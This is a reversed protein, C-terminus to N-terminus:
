SRFAPNATRPRLYSVLLGTVVVVVCGIVNYWLFSINTFAFAALIAAEGALMGLFAATGTVRRFWFALVFVGLLSGYFLSGVMNVAEILSGLKKAYQAFFVAYAAWFATALRSAWLYHHDSASPHVHRKYIDIVTVTALSNVEGSASSMAAAFIVAILLGVVGAPLYRTVYSLFIYNTDNFGKEAHTSVYLSAGQARAENIESQAQLFRGLSETRRAGDQRRRAEALGLAAEKRREFAQEFRTEIPAFRSSESSQLEQMALKQFLLPPREFLFFVFVMAGVFLIFFQMPIKAMATFMLSLKSQAISKGTLYRQVQSQDCGFYSLALFGGGILGSWVNYRNALDFKLDVANLKGVAGALYVADTFSVGAPLMRIILVFAVVLGVLIIVMQQVDTWTVAKIGGTVTYITILVGMAMTTLRDPWGFMVSLVIAPAYLSLGVSLGRQILFVASALARTKSDFRKELYEYATYVNARHFLPVATACIIVMAVPMGFYFQVFRMGDVYAQGTTSIFTIASAQTAMISLAMAYWPMTKGALLYKNVTDSGRGKYLGYLVIGTLTGILVLWDLPRM